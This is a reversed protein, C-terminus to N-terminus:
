WDLPGLQRLHGVLNERGFGEVVAGGADGLLCYDDVPCDGVLQPGLNSRGASVEAGGPPLGGRRRGRRASRHWGGRRQLFTRWGAPPAPRIRRVM